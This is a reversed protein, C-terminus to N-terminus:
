AVKDLGFSELYLPMLGYICLSFSFSLSASLLMYIYCGDRLLMSYQKCVSFVSQPRLEDRTNEILRIVCGYREAQSLSIFKSDSTLSNNNSINKRSGPESSSSRSRTKTIKESRFFLYVCPVLLLVVGAEVMLMLRLHEAPMVAQEEKPLIFSPLIGGLMLGFMECGVM